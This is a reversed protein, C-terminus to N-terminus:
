GKLYNLWCNPALFNIRKSKSVIADERKEGKKPVAPKRLRKQFLFFINPNAPLSQYGRM